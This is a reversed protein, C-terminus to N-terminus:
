RHCMVFWQVIASPASAVCSLHSSVVASFLSLISVPLRSPYPVSVPPFPVSVPRPRASVPRLHSPFSPGVHTLPQSQISITINVFCCSSSIYVFYLSFLFLFLRLPFAVYACCPSPSFVYVSLHRFLPSPVSAPCFRFPSSSSIFSALLLRYVRLVRSRRPRPPSQREPSWDTM